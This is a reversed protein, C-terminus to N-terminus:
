PASKPLAKQARRLPTNQAAKRSNEHVAAEITEPATISRMRDPANQIRATRIPETIHIM